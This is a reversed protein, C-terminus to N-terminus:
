LLSLSRGSKNLLVRISVSIASTIVSGVSGGEGSVVVTVGRSSPDGVNVSVGVLVSVGVSVAVTDGLGVYVRVSVGVSAVVQGVPLIGGSYLRANTDM